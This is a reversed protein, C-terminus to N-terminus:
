CIKKKKMATFGKVIGRSCTIHTIGGTINTSENYVKNCDDKGDSKDSKTDASYVNKVTHLPYGPYVQSKASERTPKKRAVARQRAISMFMYSVQLDLMALFM